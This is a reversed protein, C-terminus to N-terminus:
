LIWYAEGILRDFPVTGWYRGDFSDNTDGMLFLHGEPVTFRREVEAPTKGITELLALGTGVVVGNVRTDTLTVVVEDGPFGEVRKLFAVPQGYYSGVAEPPAFSLLGGRAVEVDGLAIAFLWGELCRSAQGDYALRYNG